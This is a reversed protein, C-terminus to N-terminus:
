FRVSFSLSDNFQKLGENPLDFFGYCCALDLLVSLISNTHVIIIQYSYM